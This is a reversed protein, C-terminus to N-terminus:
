PLSSSLWKLINLFIGGLHRLIRAFSSSNRGSNWLILCNCCRRSASNRCIVPGIEGGILLGAGGIVLNWLLLVEAGGCNIMTSGRILRCGGLEDGLESVFRQALGVCQLVIGLILPILVQNNGIPSFLFSLIGFFLCVAVVLLPLRKDLM